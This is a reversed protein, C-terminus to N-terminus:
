LVRISEANTLAYRPPTTSNDISLVQIWADLGALAPGLPITFFTTGSPGQTGDLVALLPSLELFVFGTASPIPFSPNQNLVGSVLFWQTAPGTDIELHLIDSTSLPRPWSALGSREFAGIDPTQPGGPFSQSKRLWGYGRNDFTSSFPTYNPNAADICPSAQLLRLDLAASNRFLPDASFSQGSGALSPDGLDCAIFWSPAGGQLETANGWIISNAFSAQADPQANQAAFGVGNQTLTNGTFFPSAPGSLEVGHTGNRAVLCETVIPHCPGALELGGGSCDIIRNGRLIRGFESTGPPSSLLVGSGDGKVVTFGSLESLTEMVVAHTGPLGTADIITREPGAESRVLIFFPITLAEHYVGPRVIVYDHPIALVFAQAITTFPDSPTGIGPGPASGDVYISIHRAPAETETGHALLAPILCFLALLTRNMVRDPPPM